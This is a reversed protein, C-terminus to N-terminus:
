RWRDPRLERSPVKHRAFLESATVGTKAGIQDLYPQVEDANKNTIRLSWIQARHRITHHCVYPLHCLLIGVARIPNHGEGKVVVLTLQTQSLVTMEKPQSLLSDDNTILGDWPREDQHLALLLQWDEVQALESRVERIPVLEAMPLAAAMAKLIPEPFNQDLAFLRRPRPPAM